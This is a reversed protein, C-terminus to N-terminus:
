TILIFLHCCSRISSWSRYWITKETKDLLSPHIVRCIWELLGKKCLKAKVWNLSLEIRSKLSLPPLYAGCHFNAMNAIIKCELCCFVYWPVRLVYLNVGLLHRGPGTKTRWLLNIRCETGFTYVNSFSHPMNAGGAQNHNLAM